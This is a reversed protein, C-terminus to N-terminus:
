QIVDFIQLFFHIFLFASRYTTWNSPYYRKLLTMNREPYHDSFGIPNFSMYDIVAISTASLRTMFCCPMIRKKAKSKAKKSESTIVVQMEVILLLKKWNFIFYIFNNEQKDSKSYKFRYLPFIIMDHGVKNCFHAMTMDKPLM